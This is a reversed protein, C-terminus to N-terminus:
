KIHVLQKCEYLKLKLVLDKSYGHLREKPITLTFKYMGYHGGSTKYTGNQSNVNCKQKESICTSDIQDLEIEKDDM